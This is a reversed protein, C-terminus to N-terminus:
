RDGKSYLGAAVTLIGAVILILVIFLGGDFLLPNGFFGAARTILLVAALGLMLSGAWFKVNV